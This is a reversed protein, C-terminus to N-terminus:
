EWEDVLSNSKVCRRHKYIVLTRQGGLHTHKSTHNPPTLLPGFVISLISLFFFVPITTSPSPSAHHYQSPLPLPQINETQFLGLCTYYLMVQWEEFLTDYLLSIISDYTTCNSLPITACPPITAQWNQCGLITPDKNVQQQVLSHGDRTMIKVTVEPMCKQKNVWYYLKM